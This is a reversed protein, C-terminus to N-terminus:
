NLKFTKLTSLDSEHSNFDGMVICNEYHFSDLVKGLNELFYDCRQNPPKYIGLVLWKQACLIVEIWVIEIDEPLSPLKIANSTLECNVYLVLGGGNKNRDIRYPRKFGNLGISADTFSQDLKSESILLIDLHDKVIERLSLVKSSLSNINLHGILLKTPHLKKIKLLACDDAM